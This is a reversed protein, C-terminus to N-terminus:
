CGVLVHVQSASSSKCSLVSLKKYIICVNVDSIFVELDGKTISEEEVRFQLDEVKRSFVDPSVVPLHPASVDNWSSFYLPPLM